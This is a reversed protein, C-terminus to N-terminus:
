CVTVNTVKGAQLNIEWPRGLQARALSVHMLGMPSDLTIAGFDLRPISLRLLM